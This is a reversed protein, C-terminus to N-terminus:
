LKSVNWALTSRCLRQTFEKHTIQEVFWSLEWEDPHRSWGDYDLITCKNRYLKEYWENSSMTIELDSM